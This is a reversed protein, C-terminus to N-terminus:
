DTSDNIVMIPRPQAFLCLGRAFALPRFGLPTKIFHKPGVFSARCGAGCTTYDSDNEVASKAVSEAIVSM